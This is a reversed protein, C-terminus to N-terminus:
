RSWEAGVPDRVEIRLVSVLCLEATIYWMTLADQRPLVCHGGVVNFAGLGCTTLCHLNFLGHSRVRACCVRM